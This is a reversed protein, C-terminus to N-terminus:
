LMKALNAVAEVERDYHHGGAQEDVNKPVPSSHAPFVVCPVIVAAPPM